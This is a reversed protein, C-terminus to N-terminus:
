WARYFRPMMTLSIEGLGDFSLDLSTEGGAPVSAFQYSGLESTVDVGDLLASQDVPDTNITLTSGEPVMGPFTVFRGGIGLRLNSLPGSAQWMPWADVDGPNEISATALSTGKSIVFPAAGPSAADVPGGGYFNEPPAQGWSKTVPEASLWFPDDAVLEVGYSQWGFRHPDRTFSHGGDSVFRCRLERTGATTTVRWMGFRGPQLTQWLKSDLEQWDRSGGDAYVYLPWFVKRPDSVGGAYVQGHVFPSGSRVWETESPMGLGETGSQRLFAGSKWDSILFSDGNWGVWEMTMRSWVDQPRPPAIPPTMYLFTVSAEENSEPQSYLANGSLATSM